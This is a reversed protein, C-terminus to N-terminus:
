EMADLLRQRGEAYVDLTRPPMELLLTVNPNANILRPIAPLLKLNGAGLPLHADYLGDNDHIHTHHIAGGLAKVYEDPDYGSVLSHGFDLAVGVKRDLQNLVVDAMEDPSNLLEWPYYMNELLLEMGADHVEQEITAISEIMYPIYNARRQDFESKAEEYLPHGVKLYDYWGIDGGHMVVREAGIAIAFRLNRRLVQLAAFRIEPVLSAYNIDVFDFHVCLHIPYRAYVKEVVKMLDVLESQWSGVELWSFIGPEFLHQALIELTKGQDPSNFGFTVM